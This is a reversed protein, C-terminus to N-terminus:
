RDIERFTKAHVNSYGHFTKDIRRRGWDGGCRNNTKKCEDVATRNWGRWKERVGKCMEEYDLNRINKYVGGKGKAM